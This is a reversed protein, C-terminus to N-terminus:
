ITFAGKPLAAAAASRAATWCQSVQISGDYSCQFWPQCKFLCYSQLVMGIFRTNTKINVCLKKGKFFFLYLNTSGLRFSFLESASFLIILLFLLHFIIFFLVKVPANTFLYTKGTLFRTVWQGHQTLALCFVAHTGGSEFYANQWTWYFAIKRWM